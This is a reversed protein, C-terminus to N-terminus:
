KTNSHGFLIGYKEGCKEERERGRDTERGGEKQTDIFMITMITTVTMMTTMTTLTM